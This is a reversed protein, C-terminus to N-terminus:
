IFNFINIADQRVCLCLLVGSSEMIHDPLNRIGNGYILGCCYEISQVSGVFLGVISWQWLGYQLTKSEVQEWELM